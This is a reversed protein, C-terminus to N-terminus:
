SFITSFLGKSNNKSVQAALANNSAVTSATLNAFVQALQEQLAANQASLAVAQDSQAKTVQLLTANDSEHISVNAAIQSQEISAGLAAIQKQSDIQAQGIQASLQTVLDQSHAQADIQALAVAKSADNNNSSVGAAIQALAIQAANNDSNAQLAAGTQQAQAQYAYDQASAALGAQVTTPDYGPIAPAYSGGGFGAFLIVGGVIVAAGTAVPHEKVFDLVGM